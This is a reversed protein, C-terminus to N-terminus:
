IFKKPPIIKQTWWQQNGILNVENFSENVANIVGPWNNIYDDGCFFGNPKLKPYWHSIDKKISEYDHSADIYIIDFFNDPYNSSESISDNKIIHVKEIIPKLNELTIGYYDIGKVHEDSGKFHDVAFYEYEINRNILEVNWMATMRGKYVGVEVIKLNNSNIKSLITKLLDGQDTMQSWGDINNFFHEM